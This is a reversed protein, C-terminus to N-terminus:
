LCLYVEKMLTDRQAEGESIQKALNRMMQETEKAYKDIDIQQTDTEQQM